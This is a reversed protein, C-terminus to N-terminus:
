LANILSEVNGVLGDVYEKTAMQKWPTWGDNSGSGTYVRQYTAGIDNGQNAIYTQVCRPSNMSLVTIVHGNQSIPNNANTSISMFVGNQKFDNLDIYKVGNLNVSGFSNDLIKEVQEGTYKSNYAM